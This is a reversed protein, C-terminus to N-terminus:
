TLGILRPIMFSHNLYYKGIKTDDSIDFNVTAIDSPYNPIFFYAYTDPILVILIPSLLGIAVSVPILIKATAATLKSRNISLVSYKELDKGRFNSYLSLLFVGVLNALINVLLIKFLTLDELVPRQLM